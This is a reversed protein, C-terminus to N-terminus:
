SQPEGRGATMLAIPRWVAYGMVLLAGIIGSLAWFVARQLVPGLAGGAATADLLGPVSVTMLPALVVLLAGYFTWFQARDETGCLDVLLRRLPKAVVAVAALALTLSVSWVALLIPLSM